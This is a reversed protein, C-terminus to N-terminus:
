WPTMGTCVPIWSNQVEFAHIGAKAPIVGGQPPIRRIKRAAGKRMVVTDDGHLRPDMFESVKFAHIGAKAPIVGGQPPIRRIKRAAGKRMVVTDDGHLRPDM